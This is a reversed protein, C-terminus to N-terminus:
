SCVIAIVSSPSGSIRVSGPKEHSASAHLFGKGELSSADHLACLAPVLSLGKQNQFLAPLVQHQNGVAHVVFQGVRFLLLRFLLSWVFILVLKILYFM